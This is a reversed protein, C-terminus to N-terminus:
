HMAVWVFLMVQDATAGAAIANTSVPYNDPNQLPGSGPDNAFEIACFRRVCEVFVRTKGKTALTSLKTKPTIEAAAFVHPRALADTPVVADTQTAWKAAYLVKRVRTWTGFMKAPYHETFAELETQEAWLSRKGRWLDLITQVLADAQEGNLGAVSNKLEDTLAKKLRERLGEVVQKRLLVGLDEGKVVAAIAGLALGAHDKAILRDLADDLTATSTDQLYSQLTKLAEDTTSGPDAEQEGLRVSVLLLLVESLLVKGSLLSKLATAASKGKRAQALQLLLEQVEDRSLKGDAIERLFFQVNKNQTRRVVWGAVASSIESVTLEGDKLTELLQQTYAGGFPTRDSWTSVLASVLAISEDKSLKGDTLAAQLVPAVAPAEGSLWKGALELAADRTAKKDPPWSGGHERALGELADRWDIKAM